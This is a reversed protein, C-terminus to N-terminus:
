ARALPKGANMEVANRQNFSWRIANHVIGSVANAAHKVVQLKRFTAYNPWSLRWGVKSSELAPPRRRLGKSIVLFIQYDGHIKQHDGTNVRFDGHIKQPNGYKKPLVWFAIYLTRRQVETTRMGVKSGRLGMGIMILSTGVAARTNSSDSRGSAPRLM